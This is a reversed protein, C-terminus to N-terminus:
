LGVRREEGEDIDDFSEDWADGDPGVIEMDSHEAVRRDVGRVVLYEDDDLNASRRGYRDASAGGDNEVLLVPVVDTM